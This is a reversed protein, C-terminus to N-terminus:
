HVRLARYESALMSYVAHDVYRSYLWECQRLTAEYSFGLREPIARSKANGAACRIEIKNLRYDDFGIELLARAVATVIGKGVHKEGLWYGIAGTKNQTDLTHFGAVGCIEGEYVIVFNPGGGAAYQEIAFDIFGATDLISRTTDLWPLWQRLYARNADTHAFLEAAHAKHLHEIIIKDSLRIAM